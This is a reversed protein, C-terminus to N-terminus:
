CSIYLIWSCQLRALSVCLSVMTHCYKGFQYVHETSWRSLEARREIYSIRFISWFLELCKKSAKILSSVCYGLSLHIFISPKNSEFKLVFSCYNLHHLQTDSYCIDKKALISNLTSFSDWIELYNVNKNHYSMCLM